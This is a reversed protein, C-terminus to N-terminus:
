CGVFFARLDELLFFLFSSSSFASASCFRRSLFRFLSSFFFSFARFFTFRASVPSSLSFFSLFLKLLSSRRSSFFFDTNEKM